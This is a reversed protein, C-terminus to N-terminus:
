TKFIIYTMICQFYNVVVENKPRKVYIELNYLWKKLYIKCENKFVNKPIFFFNYYIKYTIFVWLNQIGFYCM